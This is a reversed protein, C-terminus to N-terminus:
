YLTIVKTELLDKLSIIPPVRQYIKRDINNEWCVILQCPEKSMLHEVYSESMFEFEIMVDWDVEKLGRQEICVICADPFRSRVFKIRSFSVKKTTKELKLPFSFETLGCAFLLCFLAVTGQEDIPEQTMLTKLFPFNPYDFDKGFKNAKTTEKQEKVKLVETVINKVEENDLEQHTSVIKVVKEIEAATFVKERDGLDNAKIYQNRLNRFAQLAVRRVRDDKIRVFEKLHTFLMSDIEDIDFALYIKIYINITHETKGLQNLTYDEFKKYKGNELSTFSNSEKIRHATEGVRWAIVGTEEAKSLLEKLQLTDAKINNVAM